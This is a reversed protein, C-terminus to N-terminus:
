SQSLRRNFDITLLLHGIFDECVEEFSEGEEPWPEGDWLHSRIRKWKRQMDSFQGRAGLDDDAPEGYASNKHVFRTLAARAIEMCRVGQQTTPLPTAFIFMDHVQQGEYQAAM